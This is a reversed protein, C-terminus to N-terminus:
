TSVWTIVEERVWGDTESRSVLHQPHRATFQFVNDDIFAPQYRMYSFEIRSLTKNPRRQHQKLSRVVKRWFFSLIPRPHSVSAVLFSPVSGLAVTITRTPPTANKFAGKTCEMRVPSHYQAEVGFFRVLARCHNGRQACALPAKDLKPKKCLKHDLHNTEFLTISM